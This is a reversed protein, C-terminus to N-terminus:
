KDSATAAQEVSVALLAELRDVRARLTENDLRLAATEADKEARLEKIAEVLMPTVRGYDVTYYGDSGQLVAEPIVEEIEQAIFGIQRIDSFQREPFEDRKWDFRVGRLKSVSDLAGSLGEVNTKFRADSCVGITGTACINGSVHLRQSPATTGIGVNGDGTFRVRENGGVRFTMYDIFEDDVYSIQGPYLGAVNVFNLTGLAVNTASSLNRFEIAPSQTGTSDVRVVGQPASVHLPAAPANTGIGVGGSARILFQNPGSSVFDVETSDAWIFTGKDGNVDGSYYPSDPDSTRVKARFGAALSHTGGALNRNGGPVTASYGSADNESGGGVTAAFSTASNFFGGAVTALDGTAKNNYGGGVTSNSRTADNQGGGGVTSGRGAARNRDGGGVTAFDASRPDLDDDGATNGAGGGITSYDDRVRNGPSFGPRTGGGGIFGHSALVQNDEGGAVTAFPANTADADDSGARNGGGGGITALEDTAKNNLGGGIASYNALAENAQGGTIATFVQTAKNDIGCGVAAYNGSAENNQGGGIFSLYGAAHNSDGGAVAAGFDSAQNDRGGAVTAFTATTTNADDSGARNGGGGGITGYDDYVRNNTNEANGVDLPGGGSITSNRALARNVEGGGVTSGVGSALNYRGGGVTSADASAVNSEGGAITPARQSAHNDVGGGVTSGYGTSGNLQGGGVTAAHGFATNDGGGAVTAWGSGTASNGSGGGIVASGIAENNAGGGIFSNAGAQNNRGGAIAGYWGTVVNDEGGGIAGYAAEDFSGGAVGITNQKGGAIVGLNDWVANDEGGGVAAGTAQADNNFGGAITAHTTSAQNSHGGGIASRFGSAANGQGGAVTSQRGTALNSLGGGITAELGGVSISNNAGGAITATHMSAAISNSGDGGIVNPASSTIQTRLGPLNVGDGITTTVVHLKFLPANTGIGVNGTPVTHLDDGVIMWDGDDGGGGPPGNLAYLAVPAATVRQRPALVTCTGDSCVSGPSTTRVEIELWRADPGFAAAGFDLEVTFVGEAIPVNLRDVPGAVVNGGSAANYLWFRMAASGEVPSGSETLRGQYTLDSGLPDQALAPAGCVTLLTVLATVSGRSPRNM